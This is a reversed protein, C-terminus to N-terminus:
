TEAIERVWGLRDELRGEQIRILLDRLSRATGTQPLIVSRERWVIERVSQLTWATGTCFLEEGEAVVEEVSIPREEVEIGLFAHALHITSDRTIGALIQDDLPPTVLVGDRRKVFVNSGSTETVFRQERADLFLVDDYGRSKWEWTTYLSGAYNGMAKASGAGGPAVRGQEVVRLRLGLSANSFYAGVPSGYITVRFREGPGHGLKAETAHEMPRLYFAGKGAPPVFRTNALVVQELARLFREEPFPALLLREASAQFRRANMEPRFLLLRGDPARQAKLGEFVGLGYSLVSAAPHIPVEAFPLTEDAGWITDGRGVGSCQYIFDTETLGFTLRDWDPLPKPEM